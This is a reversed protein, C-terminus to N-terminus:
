KSSSIYNTFIGDVGIAKLMHAVSKDDVTYVYIKKGVETIERILNEDLFEQSLHISYIEVGMNKIYAKVNVPYNYFLLGVRISPELGVIEQLVKHDFSSVIVRSSLKNKQIFEVLRGAIDRRYFSPMKIEINILKSEDIIDVAEQLTPIKSDCFKGDFWSGADLAKLAELSKDLVRGFGNTTRELTVDHIVVLQDDDTMQIDLEIGDCVGESAMRFAELTNEPAIKSAGRHAFIMM